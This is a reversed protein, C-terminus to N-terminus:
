APAIENDRTQRIDGGPSLLRSSIRHRRLRIAEAIENRREAEVRRAEVQAVEPDLGYSKVLKDALDAIFFKFPEM